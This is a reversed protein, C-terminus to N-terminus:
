GGGQPLLQVTFQAPQSIGSLTASGFLVGLRVTRALDVGITLAGAVFPRFRKSDADEGLLNQYFTDSLGTVVNGSGQWFLRFVQQDTSWFGQVNVGARLNAALESAATSMEPVDAGIALTFHASNRRILQPPRGVDDPDGFYNLWAHFPIAAYIVANGGGQFFQSVTTNTASDPAAAVQGSLGLRAYGIPDAIWINDSLIETYLAAQNRGISLAITNGSELGGFFENAAARSKLPVGIWFCGYSLVPVARDEQAGEYNLLCETALPTPSRAIILSDALGAVEQQRAAEVAARTITPEPLNIPGQQANVNAASVVCCVGVLFARVSSSRTKPMSSSPQFTFEFGASHCTFFLVGPPVFALNVIRPPELQLPYLV